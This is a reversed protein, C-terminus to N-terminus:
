CANVSSTCGVFVIAKDSPLITISYCCEFMPSVCIFCVVNAVQNNLNGNLNAIIDKAKINNSDKKYGNM